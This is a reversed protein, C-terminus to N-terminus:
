TEGGGGLLAVSSHAAEFNWMCGLQYHGDRKHLMIANRGVMSGIKLQSLLAGLRANDYHRYPCGHDM